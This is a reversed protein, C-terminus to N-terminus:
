DPYQSDIGFYEELTIWDGKNYLKEALEKGVYRLHWSEYKYGTINEKTKPYRIIFGYKYANENVWKGESTNAFEDTVSNLDFSLGTQHESFGPRASYTDAAEKGDSEMYKNYLEEQLTYSRYGSQIYINLGLAQADSKMINFSEYAEKDICTPCYNQKDIKTYTNTPVFDQPLSYTKNVILIGDIYTAGNILEIKFGKSTKLTKDNDINDDELNTKNDLDSGLEDSTINSNVVLDNKNYLHYFIFCSGCFLIFIILWIYIGFQKM